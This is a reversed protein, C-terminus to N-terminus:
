NYTSPTNSSPSRGAQYVNLIPCTTTVLDFFTKAKCFVLFSYELNIAMMLPRFFAEPLLLFLVYLCIESCATNSPVVNILKHM